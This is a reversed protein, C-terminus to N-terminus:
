SAPPLNNLSAYRLSKLGTLKKKGDVGSYRELLASLCKLAEQMTARYVEERVAIAAVRCAVQWRQKHVYFSRILDSFKGPLVAVAAEVLMISQLEADPMGIEVGRPSDGRSWAVSNSSAGGTRVRYYEAWQELRQVLVLDADLVLM